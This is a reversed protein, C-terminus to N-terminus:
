LWFPKDGELSKPKIGRLALGSIKDSYHITVPLRPERISGYHLLTLSLVSHLAQEIPLGDARIHLPRPTNGDKFPPLSSVLFAESDSLRFVDGKMPSGVEGNTFRYLRPAGSKIVEVFYFTAEIDEAWKALAQKEEGRFLGDRHVVVRKGQFENVPFLRRLVNPPITEGEIAADHLAYRLFRGDNFYIRAIATANVSGPLNQKVMRSVDLGVVMDAYSLSKALLFPINGVKSLIGLAINDIAYTNALTKAYVVQSPLDRGITLSKIIHYSSNDNERDIDRAPGPLFALVIDPMAADLENVAMELHAQSLRKPKQVGGVSQLAFNLQKFRKQLNLLFPKLEVGAGNIFGIKIPSKADYFEAARKYVGHRSLSSMLSGGAHIHGQGVLLDASFNYDDPALFLHPAQAARFANDILDHRQYVDFVEKVLGARFAPDLRLRGMIEVGDVG